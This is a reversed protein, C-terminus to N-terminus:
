RDLVQNSIPYGAEKWEPEGGAFYYVDKFGWIIAKASAYASYPCYTGHCYLVIQQDQNALNDLSEKSYTMNLDLNVAGEIHSMDFLGAARTDIFVAEGADFLKKAADADIRKAGQVWYMGDQDRSMLSRYKADLEPQGPGEPVGAKRLGQQFHNRYELDYDFMDGYWWYGMDQVSLTSYNIGEVLADYSGQAQKALQQEGLHGYASALIAHDFKNDPQRLVVREILKASDRYQKQHFLSVGLVRMYSPGFDPNLRMATRVSEEAEEARGLACLIWGKSVHAEPNNPEMDLALNIEDLAEAHRGRVALLEASVRYAYSSPSILALNAYHIASEMRDQWETGHYFEWGFSAREWNATALYAYALGYNPDLAVARQFLDIAKLNAEPTYLRMYERGRLFLDYAEVVSTEASVAALTDSSGFETSLSDLIQAVIRDQLEFIDGLTGEYREAWIQVEKPADILQVNIRLQEGVRQVSGDLIYAVGLERSIQQAKVSRGKYSFSSNRAIVFLNELRSLDTIIDETLGAAFYEQEDGDSLNSLPLVAISPKAPLALASEQFGIADVAPKQLWWSIAGLGVLGVLAFGLALQRAAFKKPKGSVLRPAAPDIIVKYARVPMEINKVQIEGLPEYGVSIHKKLHDYTTGSICIGGPEALQELRAAVNVGDGYVDGDDDLLIDGLNIGIRYQIRQSDSRGAERDIMARQIEVACQVADVVSPFEVLLGDGTTKVVRGSYRDLVPDILEQRHTKQREITGIEDVEMLRSFAVMDAVLIASLRRKM